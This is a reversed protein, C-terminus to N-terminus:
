RHRLEFTVLADLVRHILFYALAVAGQFLPAPSMFRRQPHFQVRPTVLLCRDGTSPSRSVAHCAWVDGGLNHRQNTQRWGAYGATSCPSGRMRPAAAGDPSAQDRDSSSAKPARSGPCRRQRRGRGHAAICLHFWVTAMAHGPRRRGLCGGRGPPRWGSTPRAAAGAHGLHLWIRLHRRIASRRALGDALPGSVVTVNGIALGALRSKRTPPSSRM